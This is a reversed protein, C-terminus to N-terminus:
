NDQGTARKLHEEARRLNPDLTSKGPPIDARWIYHNLEELAAAALEEPSDYRYPPDTKRPDPESM